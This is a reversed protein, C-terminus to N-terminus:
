LLIGQESQNLEIFGKWTKIVEKISCEEVKLGFNLCADKKDKGPWYGTCSNDNVEILFWKENNPNNKM